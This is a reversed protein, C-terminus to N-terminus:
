KGIKNGSITALQKPSYFSNEFKGAAAPSEKGEQYEVADEHEGEFISELDRFRLNKLLLSGLGVIYWLLIIFLLYLFTFPHFYKVSYYLSTAIKWSIM